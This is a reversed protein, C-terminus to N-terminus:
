LQKIKQTYINLVYKFIRYYTHIQLMGPCKWFVDNMKRNLFSTLNIPRFSKHQTICIFRVIRWTKKLTTYSMDLGIATNSSQINWPLFFEMPKLFDTSPGNKKNRHLDRGSVISTKTRQDRQQAICEM